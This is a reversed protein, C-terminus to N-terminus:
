VFPLKFTSPDLINTGLCFAPSHGSPSAWSPSHCSCRKHTPLLSPKNEKLCSVMDYEMQSLERFHEKGFVLLRARRTIPTEELHTFYFMIFLVGLSCLGVVIKWKHKRASEKFLEQKNPPLARWWKRISRCSVFM